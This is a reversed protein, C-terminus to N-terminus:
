SGQMCYTLYCVNWALGSFTIYASLYVYKIEEPIKPLEMFDNTPGTGRYTRPFFTYEICSTYLKNHGESCVNINYRKQARTSGTSFINYSCSGSCYNDLAVVAAGAVAGNNQSSDSATPVTYTTLRLDLLNFLYIGGFFM